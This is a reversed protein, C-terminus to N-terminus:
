PTCRSPSPDVQIRGVLGDLNSAGAPSSGLGIISASAVTSATVTQATQTTNRFVTLTSGDWASLFRNTGSFASGASTASVAVSGVVDARAQVQTYSAIFDGSGALARTMAWIRDNSTGSGLSVTAAQCLTQQSVAVPATITEAGRAVAAAVTPAISTRYAGQEVQCGGWIVTGTDAAVAGNLIQAAIAVGSSSADVVEVISWTSSSLGSISATTGDLSVTASALTGAKVYCYMVHSVAASVTITQTRGEFAVASNDDYLVASSAYTGTFPSTQATTPTPTAVDAWALNTYDIFRPLANTRAGENRLMLLGAQNEVRPLNAACEVLDANAIGTSANGQKSCTANGTRTTTVAEGKAGTIAACACATGMGAGSTPAFEFLARSTDDQNPQWRSMPQGMQALMMLVLASM